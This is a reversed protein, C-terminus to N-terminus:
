SWANGTLVRTQPNASVHRASANRLGASLGAARAHPARRCQTAELYIAKFDKVEVELIGHRQRSDPRKKVGTV